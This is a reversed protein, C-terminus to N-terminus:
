ANGRIRSEDDNPDDESEVTEVSNEVGRLRVTIPKGTMASMAEAAEERCQLQVDCFSQILQNNSNAEDTILREKKDVPSNNVGLFTLLSSEVTRTYDQMDNGIFKVGTQFVQLADLNLGRDAFIAPENGDVKAFIQKFSLVDKDDCAFIYPTKCAKVNVDMTREAEALKNAYFTVFQATPIHLKNNRIIVCDDADYYEHYNVGTAWWGLPEGYVNMHAGPDARLVMYSMGPDRFFIAKGNDFLLNEIFREEIGDPLGDWEFMNTAILKFKEYISRYTLDNLLDTLTPRKRGM